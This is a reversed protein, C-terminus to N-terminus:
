YDEALMITMVRCTVAPNSPDPSHYAMDLDYYDIKFLVERGDVVVMGFDHEGYPDNDCDFETHAKVKELVERQFQEGLAIIANTLLITGGVLSTRFADNLAQISDTRPNAFRYHETM